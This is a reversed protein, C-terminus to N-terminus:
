VMRSSCPLPVRIAAPTKSSKLEQIFTDAMAPGGSMANRAVFYLALSRTGGFSDLTNADSLGLPRSSLCLFTSLSKLKLAEKARASWRCRGGPRKRGEAPSWAKHRWPRFGRVGKSYALSM